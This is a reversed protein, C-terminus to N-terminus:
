SNYWNQQQMKKEYFASQGVDDWIQVLTILFM